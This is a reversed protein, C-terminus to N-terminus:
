RLSSIVSAQLKFSVELDKRDEMDTDGAEGKSRLRIELRRIFMHM